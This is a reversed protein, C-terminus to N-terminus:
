PHLKLLQFKKVIGVILANSYAHYKLNNVKAQRYDGFYGVSFTTGLLDFNLTLMQRLCPSNGLWTFAVNHEYNGQMFIEYYTQGYNPSFMIGCLPFATEYRLSFNRKKINFRYKASFSPALAGYLKAQGPNNSNRTNYLFGINADILGGAKVNLKENLFHWNYNWGYQFEYMGRLEGGMGSNNKLMAVNLRNVMRDSIRSNNEHELHSIIQWEDGKYNAPSLYTDLVNTKGYGVFTEATTTKQNAWFDAQARCSMTLCALM